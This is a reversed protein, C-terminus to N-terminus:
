FPLDIENGAVLLCVLLSLFFLTYLFPIKICIHLIVSFLFYFSCASHLFRTFHLCAPKGLSTSNLTLSPRFEDPCNWACFRLKEQRQSQAWSPCLTNPCFFFRTPNPHHSQSLPPSPLLCVCSTPTVLTHQALQTLSHNLTCM